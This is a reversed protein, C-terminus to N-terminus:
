PNVKYISIVYLNLSDSSYDYVTNNIIPVMHYFDKKDYCFVIYKESDLTLDKILLDKGYDLKKTNYRKMLEEFTEIDNFDKNLEKSISLLENAIDNYEKNYVKCFSRIVCNSKNDSDTLYFYEYKM